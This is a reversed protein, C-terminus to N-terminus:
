SPGGGVVRGGTPVARALGSNVGRGVGFTRGVSGNANLWCIGQDTVGNFSTFRGAVVIRGDPQLVAATIEGDAGTGPDFTTDLSGNFNFRAVSSRPVGNAFTFRGAAIVKGDPQPIVVNVADNTGPAPVFTTDLQGPTPTPAAARVASVPGSLVLVFVLFVRRFSSRHVSSLMADAGLLKWLQIM